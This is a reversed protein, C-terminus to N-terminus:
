SDDGAAAKKRDPELAARAEAIARSAREPDPPPKPLGRLPERPRLAAMFHVPAPWRDRTRALTTFAARIRDTDRAEDWSRDAMLAEFWAMATGPLVEMAPTGDLSLTYIKQLGALILERMWDDPAPTAHTM